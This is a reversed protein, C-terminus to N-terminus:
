MADLEMGIWQYCASNLEPLVAPSGQSLVARYARLQEMVRERKGTLVSVACLDYLPAWVAKKDQKLQVWIQEVGLGLPMVATSQIKLGGRQPLNLVEGKAGYKPESRVYVRAINPEFRAKRPTIKDISNAKSWNPNRKAKATSLAKAASELRDICTNIASQDIPETPTKPETMSGTNLATKKLKTVSARAALLLNLELQEPAEVLGTGCVEQVLGKRSAIQLVYQPNKPLARSLTNLAGQKAAADTSDLSEALAELAKEDGLSALPVQVRQVPPSANAVKLGLGLCLGLVLGTSGTLGKLRAKRLASM